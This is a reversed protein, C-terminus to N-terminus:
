RDTAHFVRHYGGVIGIYTTFLLTTPTLFYAGCFILLFVAASVMESRSRPMSAKAMLSCARPMEGQVPDLRLLM